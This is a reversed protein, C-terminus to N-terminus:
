DGDGREDEDSDDDANHDDFDDEDDGDEDDGTIPRVINFLKEADELAGTALAVPGGDPGSIETKVPVDLGNLKARRDMLKLVTDVAKMDIARDVENGDKDYIPSPTTARDWVAQLLCDLRQNEQQRYVSVEADQEDRRRTLIRIMDKSAAGPTAYGLNLIRPDDYHVGQLRLEVLNKRRETTIAQQAKSAPM